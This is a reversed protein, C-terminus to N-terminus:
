SPPPIQPWAVTPAFAILTAAVHGSLRARTQPRPLTRGQRARRDETQRTGHGVGLVVIVVGRVVRVVRVVFLGGRCLGLRRHPEGEEADAEENEARQKKEEPLPPLVGGRESSGRRARLRDGGRGGRGRRGRKRRVHTERERLGSPARSASLFELRIRYDVGLNGLGQSTVDNLNDYNGIVSTQPSLRWEVNSRVDRNEALGTIVSARVRDSLRKGVTVTPETRGTRVSYASGFRFDDIIPIAQKVASDAGSLASLAELAATSGLNAAQLQDLEARTMGIALLLVIDDQALNPESTLDLKLDDADGHAHLTIRWSGGVRGAGSAGGGSTAAAGAGTAPAASSTSYRRYDTTAFLDVRPAIKTPDEFRITGQRIDFENARLRLRGGKVVRLQGRMGFRQNTGTLSLDGDPAVEAELLNNRFRLPTHAHLAIDLYVFDDDPDYVAVATRRGQKALTDFNASIAIPRTYLFSALTVDGGLVVKRRGGEPAPKSTANLQADVAMEVGSALPLRVGEAELHGTMEGIELGKLPARGTVTVKGGGARATASVVRIEREDVHATVEIGDLAVPMGRATIEGNTLRLDGRAIPASARGTIALNAELKGAASEIRPFLSTIASVDIPGLHAELDLDRTTSLHRVAGKVAFSASVGGPTTLDVALPTASLADGEVKIAIKAEGDKPSHVRARMGSRSVEADDLDFSLRAVSPRDLEYHAVDLVGSLKGSPPADSLAISPALQAIAGLDLAALTVKGTVLKHTQRTTTVDALVLQGGFLSGSTHFVGAPEDKDYERRDFPAPIEEGCTSKRGGTERRPTPVLKVTLSSAPLQKQGIRVPSIGLSATAAIADVTGSIEGAGSVSGDISRGLPGLSELHALAVDSAVFHGRLVGGKKITAAAFITGRGKRLTASRITADVGREQAARDFWHYDLEVSGGDYTEGFLHMPGMEAAARIDIVGTRCADRPGGNEFRVSVRADGQGHIDEFRPDQEYLFMALVDRADIQKTVLEADVAVGEKRDLDLRVLSAEYVSKGKQARLKTFDVVYPQFEAHGTLSDALPLDGLRFATGKLDGDIRPHSQGGHVLGDVELKGSLKVTALPSIEGLDIKTAPAIRVELMDHFGVIVSPVDAHSQGFDAIMNRFVVGYPEVGFRGRAIAKKVAVVHQRGPEDWGKSGVEFNSSSVVVDGIMSPGKKQPDAVLGKFSKITGSDFTWEVLTHKTIGVDRMLAPFRLAHLEVLEVDIPIGPALPAVKANKLVVEGDAYAVHAEVLRIEEPVIDLVGVLEHALTRQHFLTVEHAAIKGRVTPLEPLGSYGVDVDLSVDGEFAPATPLARELVRLPLTLAVHGSVAPLLAPGPGVRLLALDLKIDDARSPPSACSPATGPARDADLRAALELRRVLLTSAESHVRASLACVVDEDNAEGTATMRRREIRAGGVRVSADFVPGNEATVDLDLDDVIARTREAVLTLDISAETISLTRLPADTSTKGTPGGLVRYDLNTVRGGELVIRLRPRDIAVDGADIRGGLLAFPRPVVEVRDIAAVPAGGDNAAVVLHTVVIAPPLARLEAEFTADVGLETRLAREAITAAHARAWPTKLAIVVVLPLAGVVALLVVVCRALTRGLDRRRRPRAPM